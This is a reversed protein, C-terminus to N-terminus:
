RRGREARTTDPRSIWVCQGGLMLSDLQRLQVRVSDTLRAGVAVMGTEFADLWMHRVSVATLSAGFVFAVAALAIVFWGLHPPALKRHM